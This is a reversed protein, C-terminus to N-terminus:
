AAEAERKKKLEQQGLIGAQRNQESAVKALEPTKRSEVYRELDAPSYRFHRQGVIIAPLERAKTLAYVTTKKVGLFEAAEAAKLLRHTV